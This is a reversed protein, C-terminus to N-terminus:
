NSHHITPRYFKSGHIQEFGIGFCLGGLATPAYAAQEVYSGRSEIVPADLDLPESSSYGRLWSGTRGIVKTQHYHVGDPTVSQRDISKAMKDHSHGMLYIDADIFKLLDGVRALNGGDSRSAGIGHHVYLLCDAEPHGKPAGAAMRILGSTGLFDCRLRKCLYQDASTGDMFDWRHDGELLGIWRGRTPELIYALDDMKEKVMEDLQERVSDRLGGLVTRQTASFLDLYEGMGVFYAGRDMGWQIHSKLKGEPFAKAGYHVDGIPMLFIHQDRVLMFSEKQHLKSPVFTKHIM